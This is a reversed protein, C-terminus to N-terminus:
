GFRPRRQLWTAIMQDTTLECDVFREFERKQLRLKRALMMIQTDNLNGRWSHSLKGVTYESQGHRLYYYVHDGSDDRQAGLKKVFADEVDQVTM